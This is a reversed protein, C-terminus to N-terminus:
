GIKKAFFNFAENKFIRASNISTKVQEAMLVILDICRLLGIGLAWVENEFIKGSNKYKNNGRKIFLFNVNDILMSFILGLTFLKDPTTLNGLFKLSFFSYLFYRSLLYPLYVNTM